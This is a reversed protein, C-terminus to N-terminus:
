RQLFRPVQTAGVWGLAAGILLWKWNISGM